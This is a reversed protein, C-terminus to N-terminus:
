KLGKLTRGLDDIYHIKNVFNKSVRRYLTSLVRFTSTPVIVKGLTRVGPVSEQCGVADIRLRPYIGTPELM